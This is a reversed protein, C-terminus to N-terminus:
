KTIRSVDNLFVFTYKVTIEDGESYTVQNGNISMSVTGNESDLSLTCAQVDDPNFAAVIGRNEETNVICFTGHAIERGRLAQFRRGYYRDSEIRFPQIDFRGTGDAIGIRIDDPNGLKFVSTPSISQPRGIPLLAKMTTAVQIESKGDPILIDRTMLFSNHRRSHSNVNVFGKLMVRQGGNERTIAPYFIENQGPLDWFGGTTSYRTGDMQPESVLSAGTKKDVIDFIRPGIAPVLVIKLNENEVPILDHSGTNVRMHESRTEMQGWEDLATIEHHRATEMFDYYDRVKTDPYTQAGPAPAYISHEEAHRIPQTLKMYRTMLRAEELLYLIDPRGRAARDAEDLLRDMENIIHSSMYAETVESFLRFHNNLDRVETQLLDVIRRMAPAAPGYYGNLFEDILDYINQEPNWLMQAQIYAQMESFAGAETFSNGQLFVGDIGLRHFFRLDSQVAWWNPFPMLLHRFNITYDWIYIHDNIAAWNSVNAAVQENQECLELPHADCGQIIALRIAVNDNTRLNKPPKETYSYAFTGVKKDPYERAVINGVNNVLLINTGAPSEERENIASCEPCVCYNRWDEQGVNYAVGNPSRQIWEKVSQAAIKAVEPNSACLQAYEWQRKGNLLSYYEPHNKFYLSPEVLQYYSHGGIYSVSGGHSEHLAGSSNQFNRVCWDADRSSCTWNMMRQVFAPEEKLSFPEVAITSLRPIHSVEPTYWRCGLIKLFRYVAYMTGRLRGGALVLHPGASSIVFGEDGLATVDIEPAVRQQLRGTGVLILPCDFRENDRHVPITVGSIIRLFKQLEGAAFKESPSADTSLAINYASTGDQALVLPNDDAISRAPLSVMLLMCFAFVAKYFSQIM